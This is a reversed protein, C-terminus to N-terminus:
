PFRVAGKRQAEFPEVAGICWAPEGPKSLGITVGVPGAAPVRSLAGKRARADFSAAGKRIQLRLLQLGQAAAGKKDRFRRSRKRGKLRAAPVHACWLTEGGDERVQIQVDPDDGTFADIKGLSGKLAVRTGGKAPKLRARKLVLGAAASGGCCAPDDFDVMGNGDDDLCNGCDEASPLTTTTVPAFSYVVDNCPQGGGAAIAASVAMLLDPQPGGPMGAPIEIEPISAFDTVCPFTPLYYAQGGVEAKAAFMAKVKMPMSTGSPAQMEFAVNWVITSSLMAPFDIVVLEHGPEADLTVGPQVPLSKLGSQIVLPKPGMPPFATMDEWTGSVDGFGAPVQVIVPDVFVLLLAIDLPVEFTSQVGEGEGGVNVDCSFKVYGPTPEEDCDRTMGYGSLALLYGIFGLEEGDDFISKGTLTVVICGALAPLTSLLVIAVLRKVVPKVAPV